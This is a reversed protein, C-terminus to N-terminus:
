EGSPVTVIASKGLRVRLRDADARTTFRGARVAYLTRGERQITVIRPTAVRAVRSAERNALQRSSFVGTQVTFGSAPRGGTAATSSSGGTNPTGAVPGGGAIRDGIMVRLNVDSVVKERALTYSKLADAKQGLKALSDGAYMYSRASEDGLLRQGARTLLDVAEKHRGEEQAILGLAASAKGSIAYDSRKSLPELWRKADSNRNLAQASLGAILSAQEKNVTRQSSAAQSATDYAESYRGAAFAETYTAQPAKASSACGGLPLAAVCFLALLALLRRAHTM